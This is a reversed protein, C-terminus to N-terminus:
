VEDFFSNIKEMLVKNETGNEGFLLSTHGDFGDEKCLYTRTNKDKNKIVKSYVSYEETSFKEDNEGQVVLVPIDSKYIEEDAEVSVENIGFLMSQYLWLFPYNSYALFGIKDAVPQIIADMCSNVGSVTVAAAIDYDENLLSCVAWGGRSHGLLYIKNYGFRENQEVFNLACRLDELIQSFGVSSEGESKCSGTADFCFVGWGYDTLSKIQPLYEDAGANFGGALVVLGEGGNGYLYGCLSNKGSKFTLEKRNETLFVLNQPVSKVTDYRKFASDYVTKTIIFSIIIFSFVSIIITLVKRKSFSKKCTIM